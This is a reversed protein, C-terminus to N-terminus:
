RIEILFWTFQTAIQFSFSAADISLPKGYKMMASVLKWGQVASQSGYEDM